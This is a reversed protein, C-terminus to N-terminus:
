QPSPLNVQSQFAKCYVFRKGTKRSGVVDTHFPTFRPHSDSLISQLSPFNMAVSLNKIKRKKKKKERRNKVCDTPLKTSRGTYGVVPVLPCQKM